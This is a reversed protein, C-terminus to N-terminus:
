SRQWWTQILFSPPDAAASAAMWKEMEAGSSDLKTRTPSCRRCGANPYKTAEEGLKAALNHAGNSCGWQWTVSPQLTRNQKSYSKTGGGGHDGTATVVTLNFPFSPHHCGARGRCKGRTGLHAGTTSLLMPDFWLYLYHLVVINTIVLHFVRTFSQTFSQTFSTNSSNHLLTCLITELYLGGCLRARALDM